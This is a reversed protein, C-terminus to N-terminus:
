LQAKLQSNEKTLRDIEELLIHYKKLLEKYDM